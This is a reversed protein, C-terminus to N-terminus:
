PFENLVIQINNEGRFSVEIRECQTQYVGKGETGYELIVVTILKHHLPAGYFDEVTAVNRYVVLGFDDVIFRQTYANVISNTHLFAGELPEEHV